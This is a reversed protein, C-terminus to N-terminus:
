MNALNVGTLKCMLRLGDRAETVRIMADICDGRKLDLQAKMLIEDVRVIVAQYSKSDQELEQMWDNSHLDKSGNRTANKGFAMIPVIM